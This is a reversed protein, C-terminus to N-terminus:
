VCVVVCLKVSVPKGQSQCRCDMRIWQITIKRYKTNQIGCEPIDGANYWCTHTHTCSVTHVTYPTDMPKHHVSYAVFCFRLLLLLFLLIFICLVCLVSTHQATFDLLILFKFNLQNKVTLSISTHLTRHRRVFWKDNTKAASSNRCIKKQNEEDVNSWQLSDTRIKPNEM